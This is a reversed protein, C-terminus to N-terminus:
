ALKQLDKMAAYYKIRDSPSTLEYVDMVTPANCLNELLAVTYDLKDLRKTLGVSVAEHWQTRVQDLPVLVSAM